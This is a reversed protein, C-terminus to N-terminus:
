IVSADESNLVGGQTTHLHFKMVWQSYLVQGLPKTFVDADNERGDIHVV